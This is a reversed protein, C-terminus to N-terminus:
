FLPKGNLKIYEYEAYSGSTSFAHGGLVLKQTKGAAGPPIRASIVREYAAGDRSLYGSLTDGRREFRVYPYHPPKNVETSKGPYYFFQYIDTNYGSDARRMVGLLFNMAEGALSPRKGPQGLWVSMSLWRGTGEPLYYSAKADITWDSGSLPHALLVGPYYGGPQPVDYHDHQRVDLTYSLKGGSFSYAGYRGGQWAPWEEWGAPPKPAAPRQAPSPQQAPYVPRSRPEDVRLEDEDLQEAAAALIGGTETDILRANIEFKGNLRTLTGTVVAEAGLIRGARAATGPDIVGSSALNLEKMAAELRSREIVNFEGTRALRTTLREAVLKGEPTARGSVDPLEYVAIKRGPIKERAALLTEVIRGLPSHLLGSVGAKPAARRSCGAALALATLLLLGPRLARFTLM